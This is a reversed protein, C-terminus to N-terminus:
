SSVLSEIDVNIVPWYICSRARQQCRIIGQHGDNIKKLYLEQLESPIIVQQGKIVVGDEISLEDRFSWYKRVCPHVDRQKEPFGTMIYKVLMCLESDQKTADRFEQLFNTSFQVFCVTIVQSTEESSNPSKTNRSLSDALIMEKGPKYCICYDYKQLRLLMGQLRAPAAHLDKKSIM